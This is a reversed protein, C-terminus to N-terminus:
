PGVAARYGAATPLDTARYYGAPPAVYPTSPAWNTSEWRPEWHTVFHASGGQAASTDDTVNDDFVCLSRCDGYSLDPNGRTGVVVNQLITYDWGLPYGTAESHTLLVGWYSDVITNNQVTLGHADFAEIAYAACNGRVDCNPDEVDLNGQLTVDDLRGQELLIAQGRSQTHWLLNNSFDIRSSDGFVHLVNNHLGAAEYKPDMPGLFANNDATLGTIGGVQIYHSADSATTAGAGIGPGCVNDSFTFDFALGNGGDVEVCAGVYDIQNYLMKVGTQTFSGPSSGAAYFYFAYGRPLHEITNYQFVLGGPTGTRVAVGSDLHLGEVTLNSTTVPGVFTLRGLQVDAGPAPALTVNSSHNIGTLTVDGYSGAGLCVTDGPKATSLAGQVDAGVTLTTTCNAVPGPAGPSRAAGASRERISSGVHDPVPEPSSGCGVVIAALALLGVVRM